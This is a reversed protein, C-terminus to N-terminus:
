DKIWKFVVKYGARDSLDVRRVGVNTHVGFAKAKWFTVQKRGSLIETCQIGDSREGELTPQTSDLGIGKWWGSSTAAVELCVRVRGGPENALAEDYTSEMSIRDAADDTRLSVPLFVIALLRAEEETKQRAEDEAKRRAEEEDDTALLEDIDDATTALIDRRKRLRELLTRADDTTEPDRLARKLDVVLTIQEKYSLASTTEIQETL